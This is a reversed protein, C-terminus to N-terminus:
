VHFVTGLPARYGYVAMGIITGAAGGTYSIQLTMNPGVMRIVDTWPTSNGSLVGPQGAALNFLPPDGDILIGTVVTAGGAAVAHTAIQYLRFVEEPGTLVFNFFGTVGAAPTEFLLVKQFGIGGGDYQQVLSVDDSVVGPDQSQPLVSAPFLANLWRARRSFQSM